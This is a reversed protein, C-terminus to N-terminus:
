GSIRRAYKVVEKPLRRKGNSDPARSPEFSRYTDIYEQRERTTMRQWQKQRIAPTVLPKLLADRFSGAPLQRFLLQRYDRLSMDKLPDNFLKSALWQNFTITPPPLIPRSLAM